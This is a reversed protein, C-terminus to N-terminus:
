FKHGLLILGMVFIPAASTLSDIRDLIGGHGPLIQSSDKIGAQRKFLSELLDGLISVMVTLLCLLLFIFLAMLSMSQFIAYSLSIILSILLAGGVGELTKGPSIKNALKIRGWRSGIFYAGTDAAWILIFLFLVWQKGYREHEYLMLLAIPTPLLVFFGIMANILPSSLIRKQNQQYHWVMFLAGLWWLCAVFLVYIMSPPYWFWYITLLVLSILIVYFTRSIKTHWGCLYAWEWAGLLVFVSILLAFIQSSLSIVWIIIPTLIMATLLRQKLM